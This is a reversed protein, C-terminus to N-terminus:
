LLELKEERRDIRDFSPTDALQIVDVTKYVPYLGSKGTRQNVGYLFGDHYNRHKNFYKPIENVRDGKQLELEGPRRPSHPYRAEVEHDSQYHFWYPSDVSFVRRSADPHLTQMLEYALRCINSSMSCVLFDSRSLFYIDAMFHKINAESSRLRISATAVSEENFVLEYNPYKKKAEQLVRPDDTALYIRRTAVKERVELDDFFDDVAEMYEELKILRAERNLKDTRRVHVGVIPGKYGLRAGLKEVYDQFAGTLRMSYQFFQGMWWAFPDSHANVLRGAFDKPISRPFFNPRPRPKDHGPFQVVPSGRRGPWRIEQAAKTCNENIPLFYKDM